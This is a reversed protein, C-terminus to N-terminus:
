SPVGFFMRNAGQYYEIDRLKFRGDWPEMVWVYPAANLQHYGVVNIHAANGIKYGLYMCRGPGTNRKLWEYTFHTPNKEFIAGRWKYNDAESPDMLNPTARDNMISRIGQLSMGGMSNPSDDTLDMYMAAIESQDLRPRGGGCFRAWYSLCAAWCAMNHMQKVSAPILWQTGLDVEDPQGPVRAPAEGWIVKSCEPPAIGTLHKDLAALTKPGVKGDRTKGAQKQFRRVAEHTEQGFIGDAVGLKATSIPMPNGLAMLALQLTKVPSGRHGRKLLGNGVAIEPFRPHVLWQSRFSM